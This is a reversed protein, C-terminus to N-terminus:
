QSDVSVTGASGVVESAENAHGLAYSRDATFDIPSTMRRLSQRRGPWISIFLFVAAALLVMWGIGPHTRDFFSYMAPAYNSNQGFLDRCLICFSLGTVVLHMLSMGLSTAVAVGCVAAGWMLYREHMQPLLAFMLVWPATLSILVRPDNHRHHRAAGIACLALTLAYITVLTQKMTVKMQGFRAVVDEVHWDYYTGLLAALNSSGGNGMLMYHRTPFEFGVSFWSWSGAFVSASIIICGTAIAALWVACGNWSLWRVLLPTLAVAVGLALATPDSVGAPRIVLAIIPIFSWLPWRGRGVRTGRRRTKGVFVLVASLLVVLGVWEWAQTQRALWPSAALAGAFAFGILLRTTASLRGGFLPWLVLVPAVMMMQGKFMAGLAVSMGAAFWWEISALYMAALYFPVIWVDWQPWMHADALTSPNFWCILAAILGLLWAWEHSQFNGRRYWHRVLLFMFIAAAIECGTNARLLPAADEEAFHEGHPDIQRVYRAWFTMVLLRAPTYDLGYQDDHSEEVVKDYRNLFGRLVYRWSVQAAAGRPPLPQGEARALAVAEHLVETGQGLGNAIDGRFRIPVSWTWLYSRLQLGSHLAWVAVAIGSLRLLWILLFRIRRAAANGRPSSEDVVNPV